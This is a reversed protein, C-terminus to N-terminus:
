GGKRLEEARRAMQLFDKRWPAPGAKHALSISDAPTWGNLYTDGRLYQGFGAVAAAFAMDGSAQPTRRALQDAPLVKEILRSTDGNPLKYRLRIVGMESSKDGSAVPRANAAYRREPTWGKRGVPVLEYLATVQHGAGIEGADVADNNFDEEALARNEYGILRYEAVHAPNFEVQIKVDKAITFLTSVLEEFLVKQAERPQDIYFYNGNGHDALQEMMAENYNGTGYGLTTLSIGAEREREVMDILADRNTLGVNFDGDTALMIRNVQGKRYNARATDYALEIAAAGATSGGSRLSAIAALVKQKDNTPELALRSRGAYTVISIRDQPRLQEAALALSCKVLPLKDRRRMSGSVDVLFVLNATPREDTPLDYGALGIRLLRTDDNWPTRAMDTSVTFPVDANKPRPYAYRFYNLMEETRVAASQPLRGQGIMRRVNAYSGTDVDVSFTSVPQEAVRQISAVEKGDYRERDPSPAQNHATGAVAAAYGTEAAPRQIKQGSVVVSDNSAIRNAPPPPVPAPPPPPPATAPVPAPAPAVSIAPAVSNFVAGTRQERRELAANLFPACIEDANLEGQQSPSMPRQSEAVGPSAFALVLGSAVLGSIATRISFRTVAGM